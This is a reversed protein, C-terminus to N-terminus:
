DSFAGLRRGRHAHRRSRLIEPVSEVGAMGFGGSTDPTEGYMGLFKFKDSKVYPSPRASPPALVQGRALAQTAM